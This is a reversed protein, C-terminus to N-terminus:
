RPAPLSLSVARERVDAPLQYGLVVTPQARHPGQPGPGALPWQPRWRWGAGDDSPRGEARPLGHLLISKM